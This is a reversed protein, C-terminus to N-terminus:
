CGKRKERKKIIMYDGERMIWKGNGMEWKGYFAGLEVFKLSKQMKTDLRLRAFDAFSLRNQLGV